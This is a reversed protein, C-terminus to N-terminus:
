RLYLVQGLERKLGQKDLLIYIMRVIMIAELGGPFM